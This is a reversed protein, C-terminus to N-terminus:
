SFSACDESKIFCESTMFSERLRRGILNMLKKLGKYSIEFRLWNRNLVHKMTNNILCLLFFLNDLKLFLICYGYIRVNTIPSMVIKMVIVVSPM